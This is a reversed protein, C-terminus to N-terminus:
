QESAVKRGTAKLGEIILSYLEITQRVGVHGDDSYVHLSPMVLGKTNMEVKFSYPYLQPPLQQRLQETIMEETM